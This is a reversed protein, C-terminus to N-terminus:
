WVFANDSEVKQEADSAANEILEKKKFSSLRFTILVTELQEGHKHIQCGVQYFPTHFDSKQNIDCAFMIVHIVQEDSCYLDFCM